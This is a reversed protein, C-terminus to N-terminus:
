RRSMRYRSFIKLSLASNEFEVTHPSPPGQEGASDSTRWAAGSIWPLQALAGVAEALFRQPRAELQSLEALFHLWKELPLGISFLYRSFFVNLGAFGSRPNWVLAILLVAGATLMVTSALANLYHMRAVGMITFSGLIVVVLMLMLLISYFFDIIQGSEVQEREGPFLVILVFLVPLGFEAGLRIEPAIDRRPAIEPLIVVTLLAVLYIFVVLYSRRQWRAHHQYVKGGVLGALVVVWFALLWWDLWLMVVMAGLALVLGQVPSVRQEARVFPQWLLLLGLHALLMARAWSDAVGRIVAVHLLALMVIVVARWYRQSLGWAANALRNSPGTFAAQQTM